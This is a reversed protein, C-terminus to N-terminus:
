IYFLFSDECMVKQYWKMTQIAFNRMMHIGHETSVSEPHFQVGWLPLSIHQFGMITIKNEQQEKETSDDFHIPPHQLFHHRADDHQPTDMICGDALYKSTKLAEVDDNNEYCYATIKLSNPLALLISIYFCSNLNKKGRM